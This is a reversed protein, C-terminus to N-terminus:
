KCQVQFFFTYLACGSSPNFDAGLYISSCSWRVYMCTSLSLCLFLNLHQHPPYAYCIYAHFSPLLLLLSHCIHKHKTTQQPSVVQWTSQLCAPPTHTDLQMCDTKTNWDCPGKELKDKRVYKHLRALERPRRRSSTSSSISISWIYALDLVLTTLPLLLIEERERSWFTTHWTYMCSQHNPSSVM